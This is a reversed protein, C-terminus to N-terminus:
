GAAIDTIGLGGGTLNLTAGSGALLTVAGSGSLSLVNVVDNTGFVSFVGNNILAGSVTTTDGTGYMVYSGNNTFAGSVEVTNGNSSMGTNITGNNLLGGSFSTTTGGELDLSQTSSITTQGFATGPCVCLTLLLLTFHTFRTKVPLEGPRFLFRTRTSALLVGREM